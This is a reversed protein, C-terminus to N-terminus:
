NSQTPTSTAASSSTASSPQSAASSATSTATSAASSAASSASSPTSYSSSPSTYNPNNTVKDEIKGYSEDFNGHRVSIIYQSEENLDGNAASYAKLNDVISKVYSLSGHVLSIFNKTTDVTDILYDTVKGTEDYVIYLTHM